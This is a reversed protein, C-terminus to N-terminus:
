KDGGNKSSLDYFRRFLHGLYTLHKVNDYGSNNQAIVEGSLSALNGITLSVPLFEHQFGINGLMGQLESIATGYEGNKYYDQVANRQTWWLDQKNIITVMWLPPKASALGKVLRKIMEIEISRRKELYVNLFDSNSMGEFWLDHERITEIGMSHYGYCVVNVVGHSKGANVGRFLAPWYRDVRAEQGPAVLLNGPVNGKLKVTEVTISENYPAAIDLPNDSAIMTAATTKGVGGAGFIPVQLADKTIRHIIRKWHKRIFESSSAVDKVLKAAEVSATVPEIWAMAAIIFPLDFPQFFM